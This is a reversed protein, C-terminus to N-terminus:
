WFGLEHGRAELKGANTMSRLWAAVGLGFLVLVLVSLGIAFSYESM